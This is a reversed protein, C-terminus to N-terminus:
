VVPTPYETLYGLTKLLKDNKRLRLGDPVLDNALKEIRERRTKASLLVYNEALQDQYDAFGTVDIGTTGLRRHGQTKAGSKVGAIEFPVVAGDLLAVLWRIPRIFRPGSKATWYM